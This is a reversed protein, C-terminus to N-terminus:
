EGRPEEPGTSSRVQRTQSWSLDADFISAPSESPADRRSADPGPDVAPVGLATERAKGTSTGGWVDDVVGQDLIRSHTTSPLEAAAADRTERLPRSGPRAPAPVPAADPQTFEGAFSDAGADGPGLIAEDLSQAESPPVVDVAKFCKPCRVTTGQPPVRGDDVNFAASCGPCTIRM